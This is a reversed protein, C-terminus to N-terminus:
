LTPPNGDQVAYVRESRICEQRKTKTRIHYKVLIPRRQQGVHIGHNFDLREFRAERKEKNRALAPFLKELWEARGGHCVSAGSCNFPETCLYGVTPMQAQAGWM